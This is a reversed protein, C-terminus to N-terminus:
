MNAQKDSGEMQHFEGLHTRDVVENRFVCDISYYRKPTFPKQM